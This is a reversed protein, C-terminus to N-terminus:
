EKVKEFIYKLLEDSYIKDKEIVIYKDELRKQKPWKKVLLEPIIGMDAEEIMTLDFESDGAAIVTLDFGANEAIIKSLDFEGNGEAIMILDFVNEGKAVAYQVGLEEKLRRVANGKMLNKPFVYVKVGNLLVDVKSLDLKERLKHVTKEPERSKTFVFLEEIFRVEMSRDRDCKLIDQAKWLEDWSSETLKLSDYYWGMDKRGEKLLVGGNCTLVYPVRIGLEIRQYQEVTRTTVPVVTVNEAVKKLLHFSKETMFSVERGEYIEVCRKEEGLQRKYSYILTNDLDTCFIKM